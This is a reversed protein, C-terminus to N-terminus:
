LFNDRKFPNEYFSCFILYTENEKQGTTEVFVNTM